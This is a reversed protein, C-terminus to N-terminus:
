SGQASRAMREAIRKPFNPQGTHSTAGGDVPVMAGTMYSADDSALFAVAAAVEEPRAARGLPIREFWFDRDTLDAIAATSMDTAVLGPCVANVRINDAACDLALSRTYNVAAGKSANYAAMGYDGLMGSISAINVIAGGGGQRMAPIAEHCFLYIARVNVAFVKDWSAADTGVSDGLAGVGANNVLVDLRGWRTMATEVASTVQAADTVDAQLFEASDPLAVPEGLDVVLVQAGEATLRAASAGGIGRAGGTVIAVKGAFRQM